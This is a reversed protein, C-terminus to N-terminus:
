GNEEDEERNLEDESGWYTVNRVGLEFTSALYAM